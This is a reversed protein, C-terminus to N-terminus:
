LLQNKPYYGSVEAVCSRIIYNVGFVDSSVVVKSCYNATFSGTLACLVQSYDENIGVNCSLVTAKSFSVFSSLILFFNFIFNKMKKDIKENITYNRFQKRPVFQNVLGPTLTPPKNNISSNCYHSLLSARNLEFCVVIQTVM